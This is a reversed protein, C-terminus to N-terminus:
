ILKIRGPFNKAHGGHLLGGSLRGALCTHLYASPRRNKPKSFRCGATPRDSLVPKWPRAHTQSSSVHSAFWAVQRRPSVIPRRGHPADERAPHCGTRPMRQTRQAPTGHPHGGAFDELRFFGRGYKPDINRFLSSRM